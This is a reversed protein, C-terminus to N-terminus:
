FSREGNTKDVKLEGGCTPCRMVRLEVKTAM